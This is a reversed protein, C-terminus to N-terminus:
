ESTQMLQELRSHLADAENGIYTGDYLKATQRATALASNTRGSELYLEACLFEVPALWELKDGHNAVVKASTRLAEVPDGKARELAARVYLVAAPNEIQTLFEQAKDFDKRDAAALVACVVAKQKLSKDKTDMLDAAIEAAQAHNGTRSYAQMLLGYTEQLNNTIRMYEGYPEMVPQGKTIVTEYDAQEFLEAHGEIFAKRENENMGVPTFELNLVEETEFEKNTRLKQMETSILNGDTSMLFVRFARGDKLNVIAPSDEGAMGCAAGTMLLILIFFLRRM